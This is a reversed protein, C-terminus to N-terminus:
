QASFRSRDELNTIRYYIGYELDDKEAVVYGRGPADRHMQALREIVREFSKLFNPEQLQDGVRHKVWLYAMQLDSFHEEAVREDTRLDYVKVFAPTYWQNPHPPMETNSM